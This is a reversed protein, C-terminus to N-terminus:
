HKKGLRIMFCTQCPPIFGTTHYFLFLPNAQYRPGGLDRNLCWVQSHSKGNNIVLSCYKVTPPWSRSIPLPDLDAPPAPPPSDPRNKVVDLRTSICKVTFTINRTYNAVAVAKGGPCM